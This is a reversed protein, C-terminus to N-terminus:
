IELAIHYSTTSPLVLSIYRNAFSFMDLLVPYDIRFSMTIGCSAWMSEVADLARDLVENPVKYPARSKLVFLLAPFDYMAKANWLNAQRFAFHPTMGDRFAPRKEMDRLHRDLLELEDKSGPSRELAREPPFSKRLAALRNNIRVFDNTAKRLRLDMIFDVITEEDYGAGQSRQPSPYPMNNMSLLDGHELKSETEYVLM